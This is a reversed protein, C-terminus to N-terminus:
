RRGSGLRFCTLTHPDMEIEFGSDTRKHHTNATTPLTVVPEIESHNSPELWVTVPNANFNHLVVYDEGFPHVSVLIPGRFAIGFPKLVEARLEELPLLNRKVTEGTVALTRKLINSVSHPMGFVKAAMQADGCYKMSIDWGFDEELADWAQDAPVTTMREEMDYTNPCGRYDIVCPVPVSSRIVFVNPKALFDKELTSALGDTILIPVDSIRLEEIKEEYRPLSRTHLSLFFGEADQPFDRTPRLPIGVQGIYDFVNADYAKGSDWPEARNPRAAVLGRVPHEQAIRVLKRLEAADRLIAPFQGEGGRLGWAYQPSLGGYPHLILERPAGLISQYTSDLLVGTDELPMIWSGGLQSNGVARDTMESMWQTAFFARYPGQTRLMNQPSERFPGVETGIWVGDVEERIADLDQGQRAFEEYMGPFKYELRIDPRVKRAPVIV